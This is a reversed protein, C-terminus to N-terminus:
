ALVGAYLAIAWAAAPVALVAIWTAVPARDASSAPMRGAYGRSAMALYVREGREYSKVFLRGTGLAYPKVHGIWSPDYARSRMAVSMRRFEGLVVDLYRIMFGAIATIVRPVRLTDFGRLLEPIQTTGALIISTLLGLTAKALINWLDWLGEVSLAVGLVEITRGGSFFPLTLAVLVFPIEVVMRTSVFRLGLGAVAALSILVVAYVGFAWVAERPTAVVAFVFAFAAVVKTHPPLRHLVSHGHRYLAHVHNGAM